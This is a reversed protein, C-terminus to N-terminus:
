RSTLSAAAASNMRRNKLCGVKSVVALLIPITARTWVLPTCNQFFPLGPNRTASHLSYLQSFVIFVFCSRVREHAIRQPVPMREFPTVSDENSNKDQNKSKKGLEHLLLVLIPIGSAAKFFNVYREYAKFVGVSATANFLVCILFIPLAISLLIKKKRSM